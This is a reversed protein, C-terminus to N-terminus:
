GKSGGDRLLPPKVGLLARDGGPTRESSRHCSRHVQKHLPHATGGYGKDGAARCRAGEDAMPRSGRSQSRRQTWELYKAICTQDHLRGGRQGRQQGGTTGRATGRRTGMGNDGNPANTGGQTRRGDRGDNRQPGVIGQGLLHGQQNLWSSMRGLATGFVM